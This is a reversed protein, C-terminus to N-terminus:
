SYDEGSINIFEIMDRMDDDMTMEKILSSFGLIGNLPTRLEHGMNLLLSSKLKASEEAKEKLEMLENSM